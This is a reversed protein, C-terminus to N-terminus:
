QKRTGSLRQKCALSCAHAAHVVHHSSKARVVVVSKSAHSALGCGVVVVSESPEAAHTICTEPNTAQKDPAHQVAYAM